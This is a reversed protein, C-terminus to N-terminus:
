STIKLGMYLASLGAIISAFVYLVATTTQHKQILTVTELSFASFTTFGGLIGTFLILRQQASFLDHREILGALLGAILCGATNVSFTSLPFKWGSSHHFVFGGLKYRLIAGLAGGAAVLIINTM